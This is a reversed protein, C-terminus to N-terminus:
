NVVTELRRMVEFGMLSRGKERHTDNDSLSGNFLKGLRVASNDLDLTADEEEMGEFTSSFNSKMMLWNDFKSRFIEFGTLEASLDSLDALEDDM